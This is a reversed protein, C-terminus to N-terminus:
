LLGWSVTVREAYAKVNKVDIRGPGEPRNFRNVILYGAQPSLAMCDTLCGDVFNKFYNEANHEQGAAQYAAPIAQEIWLELEGGANFSDVSDAMFSDGGPTTILAFPREFGGEDSHDDDYDYEAIKIRSLAWMKKAAADGTAGIATQFTSSEALMDKLANMAKGSPGSPTVDGSPTPPTLGTLTGTFETGDAGYQVGLEVDEEAPLTLTGAVGGTTDDTTVNSPDPLDISLTGAVGNVTDTDLVNGVEPFDPSYSPTSGDGGVGYAGSGTLVNSADPLTLTGQTGNTTDTNLVNEVAPFDGGAPELQLAGVDCWSDQVGDLDYDNPLAASKCLAGGGATDNLIFDSALSYSGGANAFPNATLSIKNEIILNGFEYDVDCNGIANNDIYALISTASGDNVIGKVTGSSGGWIINGLITVDGTQSVTQSNDLTIGETFNYITNHAIHTYTNNNVNHLYIGEATDDGCILNGMVVQIRYDSNLNIGKCTTEIYNGIIQSYGGIQLAADDYITSTSKSVVHCNRVVGTSVLLAPGASSSTNLQDFRCQEVISRKGSAFAVYSGYSGKFYINRLRICNGPVQLVYSATLDIIPFDDEEVAQVFNNEVVSDDYICGTYTIPSLADPADSDLVIHTDAQISNNVLVEVAADDVYTGIHNDVTRLYITGGGVIASGWDGDDLESVGDLAVKSVTLNDNDNDLILYHSADGTGAFRYFYVYLGGSLDLGIYEDTTGPAITCTGDLNDTVTSTADSLPEGNAGMVGAVGNTEFYDRTCFMAESNLNSQSGCGGVFSLLDLSM